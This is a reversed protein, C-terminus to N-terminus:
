IELSKLFGKLFSEDSYGSRVMALGAAGMKRLAEEAGALKDLTDALARVDGHRVLYGNEGDRLWESIGGVDFAVVPRAHSMSEIGVLGFPEQWRCPMVTTNAWEYLTGLESVRGIFEVRSDLGLDSVMKRLLGEDNGCGAIKMRFETKLYPLARILLDAGKGRILQGAFLIRFPGNIKNESHQTKSVQVPPSIKRIRDPPFGNMILNDKMFDSIVLARACNRVEKLLSLRSFPNVISIRGSTKSMIGSCLTCTLLGFPLGCNIRCVPFYKHRRICYYDHDHIVAVTRFRRNLEALFATDTTKHVVVADPAIEAIEALIKEDCAETGRIWRRTFIDKQPGSGDLEFLGFISHGDKKLIASSDYLFREIGGVIDCHQSAMLIKM